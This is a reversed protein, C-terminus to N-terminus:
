ISTLNLRLLRYWIFHSKESQGAALYSGHYGNYEVTYAQNANQIEIPIKKYASRREIQQEHKREQNIRV